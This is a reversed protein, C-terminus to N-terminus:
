DPKPLSSPEGFGNGFEGMHPAEGLHCWKMAVWDVSMESGGHRIDNIQSVAGDVPAPFDGLLDASEIFDQQSREEVVDALSEGAIVGLGPTLQRM